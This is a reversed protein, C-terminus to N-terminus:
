GSVRRLYTRTPEPGADRRAVTESQLRCGMDKITTRPKHSLLSRVSKQNDGWASGRM